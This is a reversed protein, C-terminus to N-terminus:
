EAVTIDHECVLNGGWYGELRYKGAPLKEEIPITVAKQGAGPRSAHAVQEGDGDLVRAAVQLGEPAENLDVNLVISEGRAFATKAPECRAVANAVLPLTVDISANRADQPTTATAAPTATTATAASPQEQQRCAFASLACLLVLAHRM